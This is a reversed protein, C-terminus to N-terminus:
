FGMLTKFRHWLTPPAEHKEPTYIEKPLMTIGTKAVLADVMQWQLERDEKKMKSSVSYVYAASCGTAQTITKVPAGKALMRRIRAAKSMKNM